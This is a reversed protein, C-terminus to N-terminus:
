DNRLNQGTSDEQSRVRHVRRVGDYRDPFLVAPATGLALAIATEAPHNPLRLAQSFARRDVGRRSALQALSLGRLKLQSIIWEARERPDSPVKRPDIPTTTTIALNKMVISM